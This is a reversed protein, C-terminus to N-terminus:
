FKFHWLVSKLGLEYVSERSSSSDNLFWFYVLCKQWKLPTHGSLDLVVGPCSVRMKSHRSTWYEVWFRIRAILKLEVVLQGTLSESKLTTATEIDLHVSQGKVAPSLVTTNYAYLLPSFLIRKTNSLRVNPIGRILTKLRELVDYLSWWEGFVIFDCSEAIHFSPPSM